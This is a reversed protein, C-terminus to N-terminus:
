DEREAYPLDDDEEVVASSAASSSQSSLVTVMFVGDLGLDRLGSVSITSPWGEPLPSWAIPNDAFPFSSESPTSPQTPSSLHTHTNAYSPSPRRSTIPYTILRRPSPSISVPSQIPSAVTSDPTAEAHAQLRMRANPPQMPRRLNRWRPSLPFITLDAVLDRTPYRVPGVARIGEWLTPCDEQLYEQLEQLNLLQNHQLGFAFTHVIMRFVPDRLLTQPEWLLHCFWLDIRHLDNHALSRWTTTFNDCIWSAMRFLVDPRMGMLMMNTYIRANEQLSEAMPFDYHRHDGPSASTQEVWALVQQVTRTYCTVPLHASSQEQDLVQHSALRSFRIMANRTVEGAKIVPVGDIFIGVKRM